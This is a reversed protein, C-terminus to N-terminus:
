QKDLAAPRYPRRKAPRPAVGIAVPEANREAQAGSSTIGIVVPQANGLASQSGSSAIGVVVPQTGPAGAQSDGSSIGVVVPGSKGQKSRSETSAIGIVDPSINGHGPAAGNMQNTPVDFVRTFKQTGWIVEVPVKQHASAAVKKRHRRATKHRAAVRRATPAQNPNLVVTRQAAGNIVEVRTSDSTAKSRRSVGAPSQQANFNKMVRSTGNIVEVPPAAEMKGSPAAKEENKQDQIQRTVALAQQTLSLGLVLIIALGADIQVARAWFGRM